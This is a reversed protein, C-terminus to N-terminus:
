IDGLKFKSVLRQMEQAQSSLEEGTASTQEAATSNNHGVDSIVEVGQKIQDIAVKQTDSAVRIAAILEVVEELGQMVEALHEATMKTAENGENIELISAEILHRTNVASKASQEALRRIQDAVVTFGKGAEGARAAEISANLSLLNTQSAIEEIEAIIENIKASTEKISTMDRTLEHMMTESEVAKSGIEKVRSNAIVTVENNREVQEAVNTVTAFLEEVAGAQNTAGDSLEQAASALQEAGADVQESADIVSHLTETMGKKLGRISNLIESYEGVYTDEGIKSTVDFNGNSMENLLYQIDGIITQQIEVIARTSDELIKTEDETNLNQVETSLDGQALLKLREACIRVADGIESGLKSATKKGLMSMSLMVLLTMIISWVTGDIFDSIPATVGISWGNIGIPVYGIYKPTGQFLYTGFGSEGKIMKKEIKALTKLSSDKESEKITNWEQEVFEYFEAGIETGQDNLVYAGGNDGIRIQAVIDSLERADLIAVVTGAVQTDFDGHLWLPVAVIIVHGQTADSYLPDTIVTEGNIARQYCTQGLSEFDSDGIVTGTADTMYMSLWGFHDAYEDLIEQKEEPLVGEETLQKISGIVEVSNMTATLHYNVQGAAVKATIQLSDEMSKSLTWYNLICSIIGVILLAMVLMQITVKKIKEKIQRGLVIGGVAENKEFKRNCNELAIKSM